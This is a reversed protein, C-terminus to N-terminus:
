FCIHLCVSCTSPGKGKETVPEFQSANQSTNKEIKLHKVAFSFFCLWIDIFTCIPSADPISKKNWDVGLFVIIVQKDHSVGQLYGIM